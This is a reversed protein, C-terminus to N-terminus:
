VKPPQWVSTPFLSGNPASYTTLRAANYTTEVDFTTDFSTQNRAVAQGCCSCMCYPSCEDEATEQHNSSEFHASVEPEDGCQSAQAVVDKCPQSMLLVLYVIFSFCFVRVILM